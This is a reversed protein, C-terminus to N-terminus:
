ISRSWTVLICTAPALGVFPTTTGTFMLASMALAQWTDLGAGVAAAGFAVGYLGVALGLGVADRLTASRASRSM